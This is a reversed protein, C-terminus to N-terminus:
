YRITANNGPGYGTVMLQHCRALLTRYSLADNLERSKAQPKVIVKHIDRHYTLDHSQFYYMLVAM